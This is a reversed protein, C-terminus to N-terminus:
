TNIKVSKQQISERRKIKGNETRALKEILLIEKPREYKGLKEFAIQLDEIKNDSLTTTELILVLKEGTLSDPVSGVFFPMEIFPSLKQEIEEPHIKIGGSNIVNDFRGLWEFHSADQINVIDNTILRNQGIGGAEIILCNRGDTSIEVGPLTKYFSDPPNGNLRKLAIHSITETMGFTAYVENNLARITHLLENNVQEGGLIVKRITQAKEFAKNNTIIEAFQMPTFAAFDIPADQPLETLPNASPKVCYLTMRNSISRVVMMMGSIKNTPLCLFSSDGPELQLADCTMLASYLMAKKSHQITKPFGTSGSTPISISDITNDAWVSLFHWLNQEWDERNNQNREDRSQLIESLELSSFDLKIM